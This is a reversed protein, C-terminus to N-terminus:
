EDRGFLASRSLDLAARGGRRATKSGAARGTEYIAPAVQPLRRAAPVLALMPNGYMSGVVGTVAEPAFSYNSVAKENFAELVPALEAMQNKLDLYRREGAKGTMKRGLQNEAATRFEQSALDLGVPTQGQVFNANEDAMKRLDLFKDPEMDAPNTGYYPDKAAGRYEDMQRTGAQKQSPLLGRRGGSRGAIAAEADMVAEDANGRIGAAKLIDIKEADREVQKAIGRKEAVKYGGKLIPFIKNELAQKFGSFTPPNMGRELRKPARTLLQLYGAATNKLGGPIKSGAGMTAATLATEGAAAAPNIEGTEGYSQAQHIGAGAAGITAGKALIGKGIGQPIALMAVDAVTGGAKGAGGLPREADANQHFEVAEMMGPVGMKGLFRAAPDFTTQRVKRGAGELFKLPLKLGDRAASSRGSGNAESDRQALGKKALYADPDFAM